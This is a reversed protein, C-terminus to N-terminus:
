SSEVNEQVKPGQPGGDKPKTDGKPKDEEKGKEESKVFDDQIPHFHFLVKIGGRKKAVPYLKWMCWSVALGLLLIVICLSFFLIQFHRLSDKAIVLSWVKVYDLKEGEQGKVPISVDSYRAKDGIVTVDDFDLSPVSSAVLRKIKTILHANPDDLVGNHKVYVSATVKGKPANPNLPDEEPFSLQVDADLVGDIKRITSEIQAALGSQYRIKEQMESPVLGGAAFINLLSQAKRRPLGAANLIAMAQDAQATEVGIDWLQEKAAGGAGQGVKSPLKQAYINKSALFVLIENAEREDLGNVITKQSECATFSFAICLLLFFSFFKQFSLLPKQLPVCKTEFKKSIM